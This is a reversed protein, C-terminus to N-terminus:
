YSMYLFFMLFMPVVGLQALHPLFKNCVFLCVSLCIFEKVGYVPTHPNKREILNAVERSGESAPSLGTVYLFGDFIGCPNESKEIKCSIQTNKYLM